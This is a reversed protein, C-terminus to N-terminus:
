GGFTETQICTPTCVNVVELVNHLRRAESRFDIADKSFKKPQFFPNTPM